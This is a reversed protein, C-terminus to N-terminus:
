LVINVLRSHHKQGSYPDTVKSYEISVPRVESWRPDDRSHVLLSDWNKSTFNFSCHQHLTPLLMVRYVCGVSFKHPIKAEM